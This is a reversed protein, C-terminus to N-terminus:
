WARGVLRRMGQIVRWPKSKLVAHHFGALREVDQQLRRVVASSLGDGALAIPGDDVGLALRALRDERERRELDRLAEDFREAEMRGLMQSDELPASPSSMRLM